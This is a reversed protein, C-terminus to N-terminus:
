IKSDTMPTHLVLKSMKPILYFFFTYPVFTGMLSYSIEEQGLLPDSRYSCRCWYRRISWDM